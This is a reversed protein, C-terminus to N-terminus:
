ISLWVIVLVAGVLMGLTALPHQKFWSGNEGPGEEWFEKKM